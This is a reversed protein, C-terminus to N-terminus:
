FDTSVTFYFGDGEPRNVSHFEHIWKTSFNVTKEGIKPMWFLAPGLGASEAKFSGLIAGTGSDGTLQKHFYGHIGISITESVFQNAMYDLHFEQGSHYDTDNNATNYIHGVVASLETGMEENFYTLALNSDFSWYNLGSNALRSSNYSGVPAVVGEYFNIHFRGFNWFLSVPILYPDGFSLRSDSTAVQASGASAALRIDVYTIPIVAGLGYRAGLFTKDTVYFLTPNEIVVDLSVELKVAGQLVSREADATYYYVDNRVYFGPEPTYAVFFDGYGGPQYNSYAGELASAPQGPSLGLLFSLVFLVLSFRIVCARIARAVDFLADRLTRGFANQWM